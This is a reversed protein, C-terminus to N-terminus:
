EARIAVSELYAGPIAVATEGTLRNSQEILAVLDARLEKQGEPDLAAFARHTPGYNDRFFDVFHDASRFRFTHLLRQHAIASVGEGLLSTLEEKSGWRTPAPAGPPPSVHAAVARFMEAVFSDPTWSALAITGGPRCVRLLESAAKEHDATFMVGIASLVADFSADEFPLDEADAERIEIALREAQARERARILLEPVYDTCVVECGARAAALAANGSGGAVDLVRWGAHLDAADVLRESILPLTTAVASYDGSAWTARQRAKIAAFDPAPSVTM